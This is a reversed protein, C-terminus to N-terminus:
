KLVAPTFLTQTGLRGRVNALVRPLARHVAQRHARRVAQAPPVAQVQHVVRAPRAAQAQRVAPRHVMRVFVKASGSVRHIRNIVAHGGSLEISLAM